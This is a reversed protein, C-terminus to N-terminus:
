AEITGNVLDKMMEKESRRKTMRSKIQRREKEISALLKFQEEREQNFTLSIIKKWQAHKACNSEQCVTHDVEMKDKKMWYDDQLILRSDFGCPGEENDEEMEQDVTMTSSDKVIDHFLKIKRDIAQVHDRIVKKEQRIQLLRKKDRKDAFSHIRAQKQKLFALQAIPVLNANSPSALQRRKIEVLELRARAVQM